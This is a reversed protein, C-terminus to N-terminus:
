DKTGVFEIEIKTVFPNDEQGGVNLDQPANSIIKNLLFKAADIQTPTLDLEGNAHDQLRKVLQSGQIKDKVAQQHLKNLRAAM